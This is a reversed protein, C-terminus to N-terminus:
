IEFNKKQWTQHSEKWCCFFFKDFIDFWLSFLFNCLINMSKWFLDLWYTLHLVCVCVSFLIIFSNQISYYYYYYGLYALFLSFGLGCFKHDIMEYKKKNQKWKKRNNGVVVVVLIVTPYYRYNHCFCFVFDIYIHKSLLSTTQKNTQNWLTVFVINKKEFHSSKKKTPPFSNRENWLQIFSYFTWIFWFFFGFSSWDGFM